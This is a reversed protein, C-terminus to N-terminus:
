GSLEAIFAALSKSLPVPKVAAGLYDPLSLGHGVFHAQVATVKDRFCFLSSDPNALKQNLFLFSSTIHEAVAAIDSESLPLERLAQGVRALTLSRDSLPRSSSM